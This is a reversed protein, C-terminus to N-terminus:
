QIKQVVVNQDGVELVVFGDVDVGGGGIRTEGRELPPRKREHIRTLLGYGAGAGVLPPCRHGLYEM